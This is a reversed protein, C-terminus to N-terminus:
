GWSLYFINEILLYCVPIFDPPLIHGDPKETQFIDSLIIGLFFQPCSIFM